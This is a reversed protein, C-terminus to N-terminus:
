PWVTDPERLHKSAVAWAQAAAAARILSAHGAHLAGMTPVLRLGGGNRVADCAARSEVTRLEEVTHLIQMLSNRMQRPLQKM